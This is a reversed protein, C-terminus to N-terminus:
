SVGIMKILWYYGAALLMTVPITLLWAIAIQQAVGWRVKSLREASGVGLIASSVV